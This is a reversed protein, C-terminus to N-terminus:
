NNDPPPNNGPNNSSGPRNSNGIGGIGQNGPRGRGAVGRQGPLQQNELDFYTFQWQEYDQLGNYIRFPKDDSLTRVGAIPLGTQEGGGFASGRTNGFGSNRNGGPLRSESNPLRQLPNDTKPARGAEGPRQGEGLRGLGQGAQLQLLAQQDQGNPDIIQNGPGVYLLGWKGDPMLPDEYLRRLYYNGKPGPEMLLQLELPAVGGHDVRYRQIARSIEQARFIMEAENDRRLVEVYEQFAVTSLIAMVAVATMLAAM